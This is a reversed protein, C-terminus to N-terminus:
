VSIKFLRNGFVKRWLTEEKENGSEPARATVVTNTVVGGRRLHAPAPTTVPNDLPVLPVPVLSRTTGGGGRLTGKKKWLRITIGDAEKELKITETLLDLDRATVVAPDNDGGRGMRVTKENLNENRHSERPEGRKGEGDISEERKIGRSDDVEFTRGNKKFDPRSIERHALKIISGGFAFSGFQQEVKEVAKKGIVQFKIVMERRDQENTIYDVSFTRWFSFITSLFAQVDTPTTEPAFGSLTIETWPDSGGAPVIGRSSDDYPFPPAGTHEIRSRDAEYPKTKPKSEYAVRMKLKWAFGPQREFPKGERQAQAIREALEGSEFLKRDVDFLGHYPPFDLSLTVDSIPCKLVHSFYHSLYPITCTQPLPAFVRVLEGSVQNSDSAPPPPRPAAPARPPSGRTPRLFGRSPDPSESRSTHPRSHSPTRSLDTMPVYSDNRSPPRPTLSPSRRDIRPHEQSEDPNSQHPADFTPPLYEEAAEQNGPDLKEFEGILRSEFAKLVEDGESSEVEMMGTLIEKRAKRLDAGKDFLIDLIKVDEEALQPYRFLLGELPSLQTISHRANIKDSDLQNVLDALRPFKASPSSILNVIQDLLKQQDQQPQLTSIFAAIVQSLSAM